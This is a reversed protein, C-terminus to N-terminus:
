KKVQARKNANREHALLGILAGGISLITEQVTVGLSKGWIAVVIIGIVGALTTLIDTLSSSPISGIDKTLIKADKLLSTLEGFSPPTLGQTMSPHTIDIPPPPPGQTVQPTIPVDESLPLPGLTTQPTIAINPPDTTNM